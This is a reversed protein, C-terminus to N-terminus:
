KKNGLQKEAALEKQKDHWNPQNKLINWCHLLQFSKNERDEAEYFVMAQM